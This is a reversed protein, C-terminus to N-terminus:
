RRQNRDHATPDIPLTKKALGHNHGQYRNRNGSGTGTRPRKPPLMGYDHSPGAVTDSPDPERELFTNRIERQFFASICVPLM